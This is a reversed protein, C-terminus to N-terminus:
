IWGRRRAEGIVEGLYTLEQSFTNTEFEELESFNDRDPGVGNGSFDFTIARMGNDALSKGLYPFFAWHAFGKFGHCIVVTGIPDGDGEPHFTEGRVVLPKALPADPRAREIEFKEINM